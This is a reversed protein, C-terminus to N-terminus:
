ADDGKISVEKDAAFYDFGGAIDFRNFAFIRGKVLSTNSRKDFYRSIM